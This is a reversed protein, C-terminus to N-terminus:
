GACTGFGEGGAQVNVCGGLGPGKGGGVERGWGGGGTGGRLGSSITGADGGVEAPVDDVELVADGGDLPAFLGHDGSQVAVRETQADVDGGAAVHPDAGRFRLEGDFFHVDPEGGVDARQAPQPFDDAAPAPEFVDAEASARESGLLGLCGAQDAPHGFFFLRGRAAFRCQYFFGEAPRM